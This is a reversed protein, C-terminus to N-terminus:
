SLLLYFYHYCYINVHSWPTMCIHIIYYQTKKLYPVIFNLPYSHTVQQAQYSQPQQQQIVPQAHQYQQQQGVVQQPAPYPYPAPYQPAPEKSLLHQDERKEYEM